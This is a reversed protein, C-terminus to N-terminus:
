RGREVSCLVRFGIYPLRARGDVSKLVFGSSAHRAESFLDGGRCPRNFTSSQESAPKTGESLSGEEQWCWEAINGHVDFLGWGNPLKQRGPWTQQDSNAIFFAYFPLLKVDNGFTYATTSRARCAYEWEAENPLRYGDAGFDCTWDLERAAKAGSRDELRKSYCPKRGERYSLWNCFLLADVWSVSGLAREPEYGRDKWGEKPKEISSDPDRLFQRYLDVWAERDCLYFPRSITVPRRMKRPLESDGMTFQGAPIRVMTMGRGNVFWGPRSPDPKTEALQPLKQNWNRLSWGAASHVGGDMTHVYLYQCTEMLRAREDLTLSDKDLLGIAACIGSQFDANHSARLLVPLSELSGHWAAFNHIFATRPSPDEKLALVREAGRPDGLHLLMMAFRAQLEPNKKQEIKQLLKPGLNTKGASLAAMMNNAESVPLIAIHELLFDEQVNGLSALAFALHLRQSSDKPLDEFRDRLVPLCQTEVPKLHEIAAAVGQPAANAVLNVLSEAQDLEHRHSVSQLYQQLGLGLLFVLCLAAGWVLGHRRTATAMLAQELPKRKARPVGFVLWLYEPLSPLLRRERRPAWVATIEELRLEARGRWREKKKRTLWDRLFPVLYDHTLQYSGAPQKASYPTPLHSDPSETEISQRNGAGIDRGVQQELGDVDSPTILRLEADLIRRLDDFEEPRNGYGSEDLLQVYSRAAGKIDTGSEPLLAKLVSKVAKQHRRHHPPATSASFTGELFAVGVGEAGGAEKLSAPTWPRGKMMEAFLALRVCIVKNEQALSAVAQRLFQRQEKSLERPPEPLADAARGFAALVKEAHRIPFLDVTASNQGEMLRFDLDHMFETAAMWFDDRVMVICQVRGGDCQRLAQVLETQEEEKNAHLYQEFQDLVILVKKGAPLSDGLRLDVLADKLNLHPDLGPCRKRLGGLLRAETGEPTAELYLAVINANLRPLLGAKMLSSKGCGSPGYLLGVAFTEDPDTKEIRNKWFRISDPLGERDRPGPLLELFFYADNADFSRLTPMVKLPRSDTSATTPASGPQTPADGASPPQAPVKGLAPKEEQPSQTLFGRLENAMDKATTYRESIRKSLAKLCIHELDKKLSPVRQRPPQPEHNAILDLVERASNARFTREGTLLEYFVSGLSFIDSRGDVRHSEGRAQEPSMYAYTGAQKPGRGLNEDRLALGFDVVIPKGSQDLMINAPKIDRHFIGELHAHNLAEAVQAVILASENPSPRGQGLRDALTMGDIYEYVIFCSGDSEQGFHHARVIGDHRLRAVNQAEERFADRARDTSLLRRSPVKIAVRRKMADDKALYVDGFTGGGLRRIVRYGGLHAPVPTPSPSNLPASEETTPPASKSPELKFDENGNFAAFNAKIIEAYQPFDALYEKSSVTEENECRLGLELPLLDRFFAKRGEEPERALYDKIRPRRSARWEAEFQDCAQDIRKVLPSNPDEPEM